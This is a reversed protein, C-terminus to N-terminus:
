IITNPHIEGDICCISKISHINIWDKGKEIKHWQEQTGVYHIEVWKSNCFAHHEIYTISSPLIIPNSFWCGEFSRIGIKTISKPIKTDKCGTVLTNTDTEIIANCNDRSDYRPNNCDIVISSLAHCCRFANEELNTLGKGIAVSELSYCDSFAENKISEVSDPIFISQLHSCRYFAAKGIAIVSDPIKTNRCGIVLTNTATEIIANCNNRSDYTPNNGDIVISMLMNSGSFAHIDIKILGSGITVSQLVKCNSFAYEIIRKVGNGINVELLESCCTFAHIRIIKVTEPIIVRQIKSGFFAAEGIQVVSNPIITHQCGTILTNTATEIIANCNGLSNYYRNFKDVQISNLNTCDGFVNGSISEVSRPIYISTLSTCERFADTGIHRVTSPITFSKLSKCSRFASNGIEITSNPMLISELSRCNCFLAREISDLYKPLLVTKLSYCESFAGFGIEIVSNPIELSELNHCHEFAYNGITRITDPIEINVFKHDRFAASGIRIVKFLTNQYTITSPIKYVILRWDYCDVVEATRKEFCLSYLFGDIKCQLKPMM